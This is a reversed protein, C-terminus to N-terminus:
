TIIIRDGLVVNSALAEEGEPVLGREINFLYLLGQKNNFSNRVVYLVKNHINMGFYSLSDGNLSIEEEKSQCDDM